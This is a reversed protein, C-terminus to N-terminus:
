SIEECGPKELVEHPYEFEYPHFGRLFEEWLKIRNELYEKLNV